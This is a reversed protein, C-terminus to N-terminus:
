NSINADLFFVCVLRRRMEVEVVGINAPWNKEDHLANMTVVSLYTGLYQHMIEVKNIHLGYLALLACARMWSLSSLVGINQPICSEAAAFFLEPSLVYLSDKIYTTWPGELVSDAAKVASFACLSMIEAFFTWDKLYERGQVRRRLTPIHFLPYSSFYTYFNYLIM